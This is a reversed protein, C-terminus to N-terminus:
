THDNLEDQVTSAATDCLFMLLTQADEFDDDAENIIFRCINGFTESSSSALVAKGLLQVEREAKEYMRQLKDVMSEMAQRERIRRRRESRLKRLAKRRKHRERRLRRNWNSPM